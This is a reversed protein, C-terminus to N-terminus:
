QLPQDPDVEQFHQESAVTSVGDRLQEANPSRRAPCCRRFCAGSGDAVPDHGGYIYQLLRHVVYGGALVGAGVAAWTRLSNSRLSFSSM